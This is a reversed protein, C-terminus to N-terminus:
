HNENCANKKFLATVNVIIFRLTYCNGDNIEGRIPRGDNFIDIMRIYQSIQQRYDTYSWVCTKEIKSYYKLLLQKADYLTESTFIDYEESFACNDHVDFSHSAISIVYLM